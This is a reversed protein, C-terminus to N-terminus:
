NDEDKYAKIFSEYTEPKDFDESIDNIMEFNDGVFHRDLMWVPLGVQLRYLEWGGIRDIMGGSYMRILRHLSREIGEINENFFSFFFCEGYNGTWVHHFPRAFLIFDRRNYHTIREIASETYYCDGYVIVTRGNDNWIKRSSLFKDADYNNPNLTPIYLNAGETKYRDDLGVVIVEDKKHKYQNLLRVTRQLITEGEDIQIFHKEIGLHKNWRTGEGACIIIYRTM